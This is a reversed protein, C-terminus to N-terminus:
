VTRRSAVARDPQVMSTKLPALTQSPTKSSVLTACSFPLSGRTQAMCIYEFKFEAPSDKGEASSAFTNTDYMQQSFLTGMKHFNRSFARINFITGGISTRARRETLNSDTRIELNVEKQDM